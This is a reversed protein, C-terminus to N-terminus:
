FIYERELLRDNGDLVKTRRHLYKQNDFILTMREDWDVSLTPSVDDFMATSDTNTPPCARPDWRLLAKGNQNSVAPLYRVQGFSNRSRLLLSAMAIIQDTTPMYLETAAKSRNTICSLLVWRPPSPSIAGDTHWPFRGLGYQGSHTFAAPQEESPRLVGGPKLDGLTTSASTRVFETQGYFYGFKKLDSKFDLTTSDSLTGSECLPENL